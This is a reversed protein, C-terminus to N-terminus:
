PVFLETEKGTKDKIVITAERDSVAELLGIAQRLIESDSQGGRKRKLAELRSAFSVPLTINRRVVQEASGKRM